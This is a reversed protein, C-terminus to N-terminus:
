HYFKGITVILKFIYVSLYTEEHMHDLGLGFSWYDSELKSFGVGFRNKM